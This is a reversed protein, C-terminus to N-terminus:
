ASSSASRRAGSVYQIGNLRLYAELQRDVVDATLLLARQRLQSLQQQQSAPTERGAARRRRGSRRRPRHIGASRDREEHTGLVSRVFDQQEAIYELNISTMVSIGADLLEEVDEYRKRHRSGPPNDYALGDVLCVQRRARVAPM